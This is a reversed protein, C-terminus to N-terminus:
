KAMRNEEQKRRLYEKNIQQALEGDGFLNDPHFIKLLDKYRKRLALPNNVNRFLLAVASASGIPAEAEELLLKREREISKKERECQKRDEELKRFGDQLIAFKKEFFLNDERLKKREIVTKHNLADLEDRLRVREKTFREKLQELEAREREISEREEALAMREQELRLNEQFMWLKVARLADADKTQLLEKLEVM